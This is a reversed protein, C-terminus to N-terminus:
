KEKSLIHEMFTRIRQCHDGYVIVHHNGYPRTLFYSLDHDFRLKIQTRCLHTEHLNEVLEARDVYYHRLDRSLKFITVPGLRMEGRIAVGIGSEFHTDLTHNETMSFPLTCHAFVMEKKELDIRSPNAQFGPSGVLHYLIQMTIMSPVDGECTGIYGKDNLLALGLCGTTHAMKLLDFCRLTLGNLQYKEVMHELAACMRKSRDLEIPDFVWEKKSPCITPNEKEFQQYLEDISLHLLQIGYLQKATEDEVHSGILWDSPKGIVGLKTKKLQLSAEYVLIIEKLRQAIYDLSGHLIEGEKGQDKLYSLIEMSAALSNHEGYTLLLYPEKLFPLEKLFQNEVGGTQIFSVILDMTAFEEKKVFSLSIGTRKSIENLFAIGEKQIWSPDHLSSAFSYVGIKMM